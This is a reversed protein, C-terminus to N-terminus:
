IELEALYFPVFWKRHSQSHLGIGNVEYLLNMGDNIALLRDYNCNRYSVSCYSVQAVRKKAEEGNMEIFGEGGRKRKLFRGTLTVKDVINEVFQTKNSNGELAGYYECNERILRRFNQNGFHNSAQRGRGGIIDDLYPATVHGVFCEGSQENPTVSASSSLSAAASARTIPESAFPPMNPNASFDRAVDNSSSSEKRSDNGISESDGAGNETDDNAIFDNFEAFEVFESDPPVRSQDIDQQEDGRKEMAVRSVFIRGSSSTRSSTACSLKERRPEREILRRIEFEVTHIGACM